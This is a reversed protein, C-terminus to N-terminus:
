WIELYCTEERGMPGSSTAYTENVKTSTMVGPEVVATITRLVSAPPRAAPSAAAAPAATAFVDWAM